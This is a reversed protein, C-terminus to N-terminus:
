FKFGGSHDEGQKLPREIITLAPSLKLEQPKEPPPLGRLKNREEEDLLEYTEVGDSETYDKIYNEDRLFNIALTMLHEDTAGFERMIEDITIRGFDAIRHCLEVGPDFGHDNATNSPIPVVRDPIAWIERFTRGEFREVGKKHKSQFRELIRTMWKQMSEMTMGTPMVFEKIDNKENRLVLMREVISHSNDSM